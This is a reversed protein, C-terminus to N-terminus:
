PNPVALNSAYAIVLEASRDPRQLQMLHSGGEVTAADFGFRRILHRGIDILVPMDHGHYSGLVVQVPCRVRDLNGWFACAAETRFTNAEMEPDCILAYPAEPSAGSRILQAEALRQLSDESIGGFTPSRALTQRLQAPSTFQRRRRRTRESLDAHLRLFADLLNPADAPPVPPEFLTLSRWPRPTLGQAMLTSAASLSHFAGHTPKEGFHQQIADFIEPIDALFRPWPDTLIAGPGSAGHNRMDFAIVEFEAQLATAFDRFGEIALGNGHSIVIRQAGQGGWRRLAVGAGDSLTLHAIDPLAAHGEPM